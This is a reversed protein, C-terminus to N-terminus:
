GKLNGKIGLKQKSVTPRSVDITPLYYMKWKCLFTDKGKKNQHGNDLQQILLHM